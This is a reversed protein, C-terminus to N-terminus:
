PSATFASEADALQMHLLPYPQGQGDLPSRGIVVFGNHLYFGAAQPNQENVDVATAGLQDIAHRLLQTGIGQGRADPAIFLMEIRGDSVGVFGLIRSDSDNFTRLTVAALYVERILPRLEAIASEPLFDHTARVSAEWVDTIRDLDDIRAPHIGQMHLKTETHQGPNDDVLFFGAMRRAETEANVAPSTLADECDPKWRPM